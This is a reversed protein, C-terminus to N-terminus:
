NTKISNCLVRNLEIYAKRSINNFVYYDNDHYPLKGYFLSEIMLLRYLLIPMRCIYMRFQKSAANYIGNHESDVIRGYCTSINIADPNLSQHPISYYKGNQSDLFYYRQSDKKKKSVGKSNEFDSAKMNYIEPYALVCSRVTPFQTLISELCFDYRNKYTLMEVSKSIQIGIGVKCLSNDIIESNILIHNNKDKSIVCEPTVCFKGNGSFEVVGSYLLPYFFHHTPKELSYGFRTNLYICTQKIREYSVEGVEKLWIYLLEQAKEM